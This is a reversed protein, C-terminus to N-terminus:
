RRCLRGPSCFVRAIGNPMSFGERLFSPQRSCPCRKSVRSWWNPVPEVEGEPNWHRCTSWDFMGVLHPPGLGTVQLAALPGERISRARMRVWKNEREHLPRRDHRNIYSTGTALIHERNGLVRSISLEITRIASRFKGCRLARDLGGPRFARSTPSERRESGGVPGLEGGARPAFM